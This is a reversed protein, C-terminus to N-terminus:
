WVRARAYNRTRGWEPSGDHRNAISEASSLISDQENVYTENGYFIVLCYGVNRLDRYSARADGGPPSSIRLTGLDCHHGGLGIAINTMAFILVYDGRVRGGVLVAVLQDKLVDESVGQASLVGLLTQAKRDREEPSAMNELSFTRVVKNLYNDIIHCAKRDPPM